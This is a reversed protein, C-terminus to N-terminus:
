IVFMYSYGVYKMKYIHLNLETHCTEPQFFLDM